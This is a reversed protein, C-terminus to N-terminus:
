QPKDDELAIRKREEKALLGLQKRQEAVTTAARALRSHRGLNQANVFHEELVELLGARQTATMGGLTLKQLRAINKDSVFRDMDM